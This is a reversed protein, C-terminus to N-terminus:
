DKNEEIMILQSSILKHYLQAIRVIRKGYLCVVMNFFNASDKSM